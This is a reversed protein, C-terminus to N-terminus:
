KKGEKKRQMATVGYATDTGCMAYQKACGHEAVACRTGPGQVTPDLGQLDCLRRGGVSVVAYWARLICLAFSRPNSWSLDSRHRNRRKQQYFHGRNRRSYHAEPHLHAGDHGAAAMTTLAAAMTPLAVIAAMTPLAVVVLSVAVGCGEVEIRFGLLIMFAVGSLLTPLVM